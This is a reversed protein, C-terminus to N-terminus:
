QQAYRPLFCDRLTGTERDLHKRIGFVDHAFDFAPAGALEGLRLRCGNAHTATIDMMLEQTSVRVGASKAVGLARTVIEQILDMEMQSVEFSIPM